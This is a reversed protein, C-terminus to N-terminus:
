HIDNSNILTKGMIRRWKASGWDEVTEDIRNEAFRADVASRHSGFIKMFSEVTNKELRNSHMCLLRLKPLKEKFDGADPVKTLTNESFCLIEIKNLELITAPLTRLRNCKM